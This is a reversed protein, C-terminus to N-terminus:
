ARELAVVAAQRETHEQFAGWLPNHQVLRPWVSAREDADIVRARVQLPGGPAPEFTAVPQATLNLLWAPPETFGANAAVVLYRRGDELYMLPVTRIKGSRRGTTTLLGIPIGRKRTGLRGHTARILLQNARSSLKPLARSFWLDFREQRSLTM